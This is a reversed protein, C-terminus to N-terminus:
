QAKCLKLAAPIEPSLKTHWASREGAAAAVRQACVAVCVAVSGSWVRQQGARQRGRAAATM